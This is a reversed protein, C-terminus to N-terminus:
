SLNKRFIYDMKIARNMMTHTKQTREQGKRAIKDIIKPNNLLFKIKDKAENLSNYCIVEEDPIFLDKILNPKDVLMCSGVGTIEYCRMNGIHRYFDSHINFVVKSNSIIEYYNHGILSNYVKYPFLHKHQLFFRWFHKFRKLLISEKKFNTKNFKYLLLAEIPLLSVTKKILKNIKNNQSKEHCEKIWGKLQTAKFLSNLFFYRNKHDWSQYGSTGLFTFDYIKENSLNKLISPSIDFCHEVVHMKVNPLVQKLMILSKDQCFLIDINSILKLNSKYNPISPNVINGWFGSFIKIFPFKNKLENKTIYFFPLFSSSRDFFLIDPKFAEIQKEFVTLLWNSSSFDVKQENEACWKKQLSVVDPMIELCEYNLKKFCRSFSFRYLLDNKKFEEIAKNYSISINSFNHKEFFTACNKLFPVGSFFRLIKLM